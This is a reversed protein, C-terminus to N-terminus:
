SVTILVIAPLAPWAEITIPYTDAVDGALTLTGGSVAVADGQEIRATCPDPLGALDATGGLPVALTEPLDLRPRPVLAGDVLRYRDLIETTPLDTEIWQRDALTSLWEATEPGHISFVQLPRGTMDCVVLM